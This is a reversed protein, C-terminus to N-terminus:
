KSLKVDKYVFIKNSEYPTSSFYRAPDNDFDIVIIDNDKLVYCSHENNIVINNVKVIGIKFLEDIREKSYETFSQLFEKINLDKSLNVHVEM